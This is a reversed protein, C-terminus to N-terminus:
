RGVVWGLVLRTTPTIPIVLNLGIQDDLAAGIIQVGEKLLRMSTEKPHSLYISWRESKKGRTRSKKLITDSQM